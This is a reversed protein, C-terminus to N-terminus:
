TRTGRVAEQPTISEALRTNAGRRGSDRGAVGACDPRTWRKTPMFDALAFRPLIPPSKPTKPHGEAEGPEGVYFAAACPEFSISPELALAALVFGRPMLSEPPGISTPLELWPGAAPEVEVAKELGLAGAAAAQSLSTQTRPEVRPGTPQIAEELEAVAGDLDVGAPRVNGLLVPAGVHGPHKELVREVRTRADDFQRALLLYRGATVQVDVDDPLLDAARVFEAFARDPQNTREYAEALKRRADAFKGDQQLANRYEVIAEAHRGAAAPTATRWM